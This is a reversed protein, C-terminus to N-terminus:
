RPRWYRELYDTWDWCSLFTQAAKYGRDYLADMQKRSIKFDLFGVETSDVRIARASVWPQSLYAQDHGVIMTTVLDELLTPGGFWRLPALGPILKDNGQPLNPLVTVGFTPWRPPKGDPRAFSDIPFNSLLGGDVLTSTLGSASTLKTARFFFPISMSARVADAVQQEDPDLGYLRHYDWPLRVLQGTTVDTVTLVLRYRREPLLHDDDIALDGFTRVGLNKLESRIWDHAFDGKYIGNGNILDWATGLVPINSIPEADLFKRYPLTMTLQKVEDPTLQDRGLGAALIAGAISGASTGSVRQISYGGEMLAVIAGVLGIGKVGGGSLVLDAKLPTHHASPENTM